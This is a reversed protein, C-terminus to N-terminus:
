ILWLTKWQFGNNIKVYPSLPTIPFVYDSPASSTWQLNLLYTQCIIDLPRHTSSYGVMKHNDKNFYERGDSYM